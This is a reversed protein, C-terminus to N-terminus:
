TQDRVRILQALKIKNDTKTIFVEYNYDGSNAPTFEFDYTEGPSVVLTSATTIQQDKRLSMGDKAILKWSSLQGAHKISIITGRHAAINILRFRYTQGKKLTLPANTDSGNLLWKSMGFSNLVEFSFAKPMSLGDGGQSHLFIKDREPRYTEGPNLVILPGYLGQLLQLDHMHTHYMFTGARPPKLHVTFSDGPQILPALKKGANGWGPVGDYYSEIELGHWHLSTPEKLTNVIKIAVPQNRTLVLLPGPISFENSTARGQGVAGNLRANEWLQFGKGSSNGSYDKTEGIVLTLNREAVPYKITKQAFKKDAIIHIGMVLGGMADMAHANLNTNTHDMTEMKRLFTLPLVHDVLHCHFLWNGEKEPIWTIRMTRSEALTQTVVLREDKKAVVSDRHISGLSNVIFPFGHLHMPHVLPNANIVRWRVKQGQRYRLRETYPWSLGNMVFQIAYLGSDLKTACAGIMIIREDPDPIENKSDVILAGYLQNKIYPTIGGRKGATDKVAYFYTGAVGANFIVEKTEGPAIIISDNLGGPASTRSYFGYLEQAQGQIHNTITARIETGEPVRILPGPVQLPKGTEAFARIKVPAGEKSEPYWNGERIELKIYYVGNHIEGAPQRNDNTLVEEIAPDFSENLLSGPACSIIGSRDLKDLSTTSFVVKNSVLMSCGLFVLIVFHIFFGIDHSRFFIFANAKTLYKKM